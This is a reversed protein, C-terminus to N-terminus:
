YSLEGTPWNVLYGERDFTATQKIHTNNDDLIFINVDKFGIDLDRIAESFADIVCHSHTLIITTHSDPRKIMNRMNKYVISPHTHTEPFTCVDMADHAIQPEENSNKNITIQGAGFMDGVDIFSLKEIYKGIVIHYKM